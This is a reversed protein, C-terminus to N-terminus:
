QRLVGVKRLNMLVKRDGNHCEKFNKSADTGPRVGFHNGDEFGMIGTVDYVTGDIAIYASAGNQGNYKALDMMTFERGARDADNPEENIERYGRYGRFSNEEVEIDLKKEEELIIDLDEIVNKIDELIEERDEEGRYFLRNKLENLESNKKMILKELIM